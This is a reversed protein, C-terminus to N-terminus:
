KRRKLNLERHSTKASQKTVLSQPIGGESFDHSGIEHEDTHM